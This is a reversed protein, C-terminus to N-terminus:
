DARYPNSFREGAEAADLAELRTFDLVEISGRALKVIGERELKRLHRTVAERTAGIHAALTAHTPAPKLEHRGLQLAALRALRLLEGNLRMAVNLTGLEYIRGAYSKSLAALARLAAKCLDPATSVMDNFDAASMILLDGTKNAVLRVQSSFHENLIAAVHGFTDGPHGEYLTVAVGRPSISTLRFLGSLVFCVSDPMTKNIQLTTRGTIHRRSLMPILRKVDAESINAFLRIGRVEEPTIALTARRHPRHSPPADNPM